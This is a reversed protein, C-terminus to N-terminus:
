WCTCTATALPNLLFFLDDVLHGAALPTDSGDNRRANQTFDLYVAQWVGPALDRVLIHRNDNDTVDFIQVTAQSAGTLHCRFRLKTHAGVPRPPEIQLRIWKGNSSKQPVARAVNWYAGPPLDRTVLEFEGPWYKLKEA